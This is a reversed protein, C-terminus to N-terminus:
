VWKGFTSSHLSIAERVFWCCKEIWNEKDKKKTYRIYFEVFKLNDSQTKDKFNLLSKYEVLLVDVSEAM